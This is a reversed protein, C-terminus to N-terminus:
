QCGRNQHYKGRAKRRAIASMKYDKGNKKIPRHSTVWYSVLSPSKNVLRAVERITKGEKYLKKMTLKEETTVKNYKRDKEPRTSKHKLKSVFSKFINKM